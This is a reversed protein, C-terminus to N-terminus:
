QPSQWTSKYGNKLSTIIRKVRALFDAVRSGFFKSILMYTFGSPTCKFIEYNVLWTNVGKVKAGTLPNRRYREHSFPMLLNNEKCYDYLYSGRYPTFIAPSVYDPKMWDIFKVTADMDSKTESPLGFIVNAYIKINYKKCIEVAKRSQEITIGKDIFDLIRQSGSEFGIMLCDLGADALMKIRSELNVIIDARAQCAFRQTFGHELYKAVFTEIYNTKLIFLDDHILFSNFRYKERLHVLENIVDDVPRTKVKNGFVMREAPQCFRCRYPCGRSTVISVFPPKMHSFLPNKGESNKYDFLERDVWPLNEVDVSEGHILREPRENLELSKLLRHLSIEGEKTIVYDFDYNELVEDSAVTPHVGGIVTLSYPKIKKILAAARESISYDISMTSIGFVKADSQQVVRAFHDWGKLKRLDIMGVAHGQSKLYASISALGHQMFNADQNKPRGFSNFGCFTIAPFILDIRM